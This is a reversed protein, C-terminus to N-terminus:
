QNMAYRPRNRLINVAERCLNADDGLFEAHSECFDALELALRGTQNKLVWHFEAEMSLAKLITEDTRAKERNIARGTALKRLQKVM